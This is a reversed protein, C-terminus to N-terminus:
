FLSQLVRTQRIEAMEAQKFGKSRVFAVEIAIAHDDCEAIFVKYYQNYQSVNQLM